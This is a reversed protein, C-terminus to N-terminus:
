RMREYRSMMDAGLRRRERRIYRSSAEIASLPLGALAAVTAGGLAVPSRFLMIEDALDAQVLARALKAGGEVLVSTIGAEALRVLCAALDLGGSGRPVRFRGAGETEASLVWTPASADFVRLRRDLRAESDLIVRVPSRGELGPLRVTLAPDDAEVTGRGVLIADFRSRLAQVHRRAIDGTVAVQREGSRGIADDASVALKLMVHPRGRRLIRMHQPNACAAESALVGETVAVGAERLQSLGKGSTRPDPDARAAVVRSVGAGILADTCPGGRAGQHACPELSVYLTAGRADKGAEALAVAEAHPRGGAATRGRGIVVGDKVLLAGVAASNPRITGNAGSGLRIAAAMFRRDLSDSMM